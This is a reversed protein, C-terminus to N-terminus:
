SGYKPWLEAYKKKWGAGFTAELAHAMEASNALLAVNALQVFDNPSGTEVAQEVMDEAFGVIGACLMAIAAVTINEYEALALDFLTREPEEPTSTQIGFEDPRACMDGVVYVADGCWVGALSGFRHTVKGGSSFRVAELNCVLTSVALAHRLRMLGSAKNNENFQGIDLYQRKAPNVILYTEGMDTPNACFSSLGGTAAQLTPTLWLARQGREPAISRIDPNIQWIM